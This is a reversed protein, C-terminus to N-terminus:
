RLDTKWLVKRTLGQNVREMAISDHGGSGVDEDHVVKTGM